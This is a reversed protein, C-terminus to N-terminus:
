RTEGGASPASAGKGRRRLHWWLAIAAAALVVPTVAWWGLPHRTYAMASMLIDRGALADAVSRRVIIENRAMQAGSAALVPGPFRVRWELTGSELAKTDVASDAGGLVTEPGTRIRQVFTAVSGDVRYQVLRDSFLACQAVQRPSDFAIELEIRPLGYTTEFRCSRLTMEAQACMQSLVAFPPLFAAASQQWKKAREQAQWYETPECTIHITGSGDRAIRWEEKYHFCGALAVAACLAIWRAGTSWGRRTTAHSVIARRQM